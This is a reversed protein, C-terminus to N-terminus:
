TGKQHGLMMDFMFLVLPGWPMFTSVIAYSSSLGKIQGMILLNFYYNWLARIFIREYKVVM